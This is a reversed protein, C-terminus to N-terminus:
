KGASQAKAPQDEASDKMVLSKAMAFIPLGFASGSIDAPIGIAPPAAARIRSEHISSAADKLVSKVDTVVADVHAAPQASSAAMQAERQHAHQFDIEFQKHLSKGTESM